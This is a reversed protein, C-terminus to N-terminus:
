EKEKKPYKWKGKSTNAAFLAMEAPHGGEKAARDICAQSVKGKCYKTFDGETGEEEMEKSAKQIWKEEEQLASGFDRKGKKAFRAAMNLEDGEGQDDDYVDLLVNEVDIGDVSGERFEDIAAGIVQLVEGHAEEKTANRSKYHHAVETALEHMLKNFEALKSDFPRGVDDDWHEQIVEKIIYKLEGKTIKM